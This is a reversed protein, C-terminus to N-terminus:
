ARAGRYGSAARGGGVDDLGVLHLGLGALRQEVDDGHELAPLAQEFGRRVGLKGLGDEFLGAVRVHPLVVLRGFRGPRSSFRLSSMREISANSLMRPKRSCMASTISASVCRRVEVGDRDHRQMRGLAEFELGDEQGAPLFAQKRVLAREVFAAARAELFFAAEGIDAERAGLRRQWMQNTELRRM